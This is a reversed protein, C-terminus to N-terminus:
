QSITGKWDASSAKLRMWGFATMRDPPGAEVTSSRCGARAAPRDEVGAHRHEADAVALLGHAHLEAALDLAAVVAFEAAGEEIDVFSQASNSPTQAM